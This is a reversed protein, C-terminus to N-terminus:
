SSPAHARKATLGARYWSRFCSTTSCTAGPLLNDEQTVYGIECNWGPKLMRDSSDSIVKGRLRIEGKSPKDIQALANLMTSKGSGSPGVITLFEGERVSFTMDQLIWIASMGDKPPFREWTSIEFFDAVATM